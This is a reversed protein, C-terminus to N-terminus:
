ESLKYLIADTLQDIREEKKAIQADKTSIIDKLEKIQQKLEDIYINNDDSTYGRQSKNNIKSGNGAVINNNGHIAQNNITHKTFVDGNGLLLWDASVGYVEAIKAVIDGRPISGTKYNRIVSENCGIKSAFRSNNGNELRDVLYAIRKAFQDADMKYRYQNLNKKRTRKKNRIKAVYDLQFVVHLTVSFIHIAILLYM